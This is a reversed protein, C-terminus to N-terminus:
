KKQKEPLVKRLLDSLVAVRKAQDQSEKAMGDLLAGSESDKMVSLLKVVAPDDMEKLISLVSQPSMSAYMRVVKKLNAAEEEQIRVVNKDFDMQLQAVRQTITNIEARESELHAALKRLDAERKALAEKERRLEEVVQDVEPNHREWFGIVTSTEVAPPTNATALPKQLLLVMTLLFALGGLTM